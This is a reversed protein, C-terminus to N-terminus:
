RASAGEIPASAATRAIRAPRPAVREGAVQAAKAAGVFPALAFFTATPTLQPLTSAPEGRALHRHVMGYIGFQIAERAIKPARPSHRYGPDILTTFSRIAEDRQQLAAPGAALVEVAVLRTLAPESAFYRMIATIAAHFARPWDEVLPEFADLATALTRARVMEFCALFCGEKGGYCEYLTRYSTKAHATLASVPVHRYGNQASLEAISYLLRISPDAEPRRRAPRVQTRPRALRAPPPRYSLTWSALQEALAPLERERERRLRDHFLIQVTGAIADLIEQALEARRPSRAVCDALLRALSATSREARAVGQDGVEYVNVLAMRAAAPQALTVNAIEAFARRLADEFRRESRYAAWVRERADRQLEEVAALFCEEISDYLKYFESPAVGSGHGLDELRAAAYGDKAVTAVLWGFVRRRQHEKTAARGNPQPGPQLRDHRLTESDGWPTKM